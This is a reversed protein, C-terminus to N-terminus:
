FCQGPDEQRVVELVSTLFYGAPNFNNEMRKAAAGWSYWSCHHRTWAALDLGAWSSLKGGLLEQM